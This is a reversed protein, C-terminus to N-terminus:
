IARSASILQATANLEAQKEEEVVKNGAKVVVKSVYKWLKKPNKQTHTNTNSFCDCRCKHKNHDSHM